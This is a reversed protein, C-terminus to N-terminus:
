GIGPTGGQGLLFEKPGKFDTLNKLSWGYATVPVQEALHGHKKSSCMLGDQASSRLLFRSLPLRAGEM